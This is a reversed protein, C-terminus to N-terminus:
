VARQDERQAYENHSAEDWRAAGGTAAVGFTNAVAFVNRAVSLSASRVFTM